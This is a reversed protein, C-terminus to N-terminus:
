NRSGNILQRIRNEIIQHDQLLHQKVAMSPVVFFDTHKITLQVIGASSYLLEGMALEHIYSYIPGSFHEKVAHLLEGNTITNNFVLDVGECYSAINLPHLPKRIKRIIRHYIFSRTPNRTFVGCKESLTQFESILPGGQRLITNMVYGYEKLLKMLRLLLIPAGNLNADHSIILIKKVTQM